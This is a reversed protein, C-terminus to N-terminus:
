MAIWEPLMYDAADKSYLTSLPSNKKVFDKLYVVTPNGPIKFAAWWGFTGVTRIMHDTLSLIQLDVAPSSSPQLVIVDDNVPVINERNWQPDEGLVLFKVRSFRERFYTLARVFFDPSAVRYGQSVLVSKTLDGRRNHVGVFTTNPFKTRFGEVVKTATQVIDDAFTVAKKMEQLLEAFYVWSQLYMDVTYDKGAEQKLLNEDFRCLYREQLHKAKRCRAYLQDRHNQVPPYKLIRKMNEDNHFFFTKNLKHAIGLISAYEFLHNGLRGPSFTHCLVPKSPDSVHFSKSSNSFETTKKEDTFSTPKSANQKDDTLSKPKSANQTDDKFNKPKSSNQKDDTLSKPKSVNQKDDTLSKPKSVNQKDDTLSKPKSANQKDDTLSKPKSVNQKDDTLSKPKS